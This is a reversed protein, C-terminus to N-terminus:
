GKGAATSCEQVVRWGEGWREFILTELVERRFAGGGDAREGRLVLRGTVVASETFVKCSAIKYSAEFTGFAEGIQALGEGYVKLNAARGRVLRGDSVIQTFDESLMVELEGPPTKGDFVGVFRAALARVAEEDGATAGLAARMDDAKVSAWMRWGDKERAYCNVVNDKSMNGDATVTIISGVEYALPGRVEIKRLRHEHRRPWRTEAANKLAGLFMGRDLVVARGPEGPNPAAFAFGKESLVQGFLEPRRDKWGTDLLRRLGRIARTAAAEDVAQESAAGWVGAGAALLAVVLMRMRM